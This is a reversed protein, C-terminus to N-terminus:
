LSGGDAHHGGPCDDAKNERQIEEPPLLGPLPLGEASRFVGLHEPESKRGSNTWGNAVSRSSSKTGAWVPSANKPLEITGSEFVLSAGRRDGWCLFEPHCINSLHAVFVETKEVVKM